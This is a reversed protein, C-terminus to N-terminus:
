RSNAIGSRKTVQGVLAGRDGDDTDHGGVGPGDVRWAPARIVGAPDHQAEVHLLDVAAPDSGRDGRRNEHEGFGRPEPDRPPRTHLGAAPQRWSL